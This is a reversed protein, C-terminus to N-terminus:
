EYGKCNGGGRCALWAGGVVFVVVVVVVIAFRVQFEYQIVVGTVAWFVFMIWGPNTLGNFKVGGVTFDVGNFIASLAPGFAM